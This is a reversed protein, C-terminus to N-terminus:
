HALDARSPGRGAERGNVYLIFQNDASVEVVFRKPAEGLEVVKRFHLVAEDREAARAATIWQAKWHEERGKAADQGFAIERLALLMLVAVVGIRQPSFSKTKDIM